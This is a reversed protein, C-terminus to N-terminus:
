EKQKTVRETLIKTWKEKSKEIIENSSNMKDEIFRTFSTNNHPKVKLFNLLEMQDFHDIMMIERVLENNCKWWCNYRHEDSIGYKEALEMFHKWLGEIMDNYNKRQLRSVYFFVTYINEATLSKSNNKLLDKIESETLQLNLKSADIQFPLKKLKDQINLSSDECKHQGNIAAASPGNSITDALHRSIGRCNLAFSPPANHESIFTNSTFKFFLFLLLFAFSSLSTIKRFNTRKCNKKEKGKSTYVSSSSSRMKSQM